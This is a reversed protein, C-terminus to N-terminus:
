AASIRQFSARIRAVALRLPAIGLGRMSKRVGGAAALTLDVVHEARLLHAKAAARDRASMEMEDIRKVMDKYDM